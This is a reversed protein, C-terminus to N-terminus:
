IKRTYFYLGDHICDWTKILNHKSLDGNWNKDLEDHFEDSGTCGGNGEGIYVCCKGDFAKLTNEALPSAFPPWFLLLAGCNKYKEIAKLYDLKEIITFETKYTSGNDTPFITM